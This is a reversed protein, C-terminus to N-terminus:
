HRNVRDGFQRPLQTWTEGGDQSKYLLGLNTCTYMLDPQAPHVAICWPTSNPEGPLGADAWTEGYDVSKLLRGTSGPPGNGNTM